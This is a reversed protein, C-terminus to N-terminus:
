SRFSVAPHKELLTQSHLAIAAWIHPITQFAPVPLQPATSGVAGPAMPALLCQWGSVARCQRMQKLILQRKLRIDTSITQVGIPQNQWNDDTDKTFCSAWAKLACNGAQHLLYFAQSMKVHQFYIRLIYCFLVKILLMSRPLFIFYGNPIGSVDNTM